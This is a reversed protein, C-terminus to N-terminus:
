FGRAQLVARCQAGQAYLSHSRPAKALWRTLQRVRKKVLRDFKEAHEILFGRGGDIFNSLRPRLGKPAELEEFETLDALVVVWRRVEADAAPNTPVVYDGKMVFLCPM